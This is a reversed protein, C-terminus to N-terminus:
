VRRRGNIEAFDFVFPGGGSSGFLVPANGMVGLTALGEIAEGARYTTHPLEFTLRFAGESDTARAAGAQVASPSSAPTPTPAACGAVVVVLVAFLRLRAADAM